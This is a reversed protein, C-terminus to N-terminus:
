SLQKFRATTIVLEIKNIQSLLVLSFRSKCRLIRRFFDDVSYFFSSLWKSEIDLLFVVLYSSLGQRINRDIYKSTCIDFLIQVNIFLVMNILRMGHVSDQRSKM